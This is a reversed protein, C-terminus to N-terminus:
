FVVRHVGSHGSASRSVLLLVVFQIAMMPTLLPASIEPPRDWSVTINGHTM